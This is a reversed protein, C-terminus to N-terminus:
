YILINNYGISIIIDIVRIVTEEGAENGLCVGYPLLRQLSERVVDLFVPAGCTECDIRDPHESRSGVLCAEGLRIYACGGSRKFRYIRDFSELAIQFLGQGVRVYRFLHSPLQSALLPLLRICPVYHSTYVFSSRM